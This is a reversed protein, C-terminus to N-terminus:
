PFLLFCLVHLDDSHLSVQLFSNSLDGMIVCTWRRFRLLVLPLDPILSPSAELCNSMSVGNPGKASADFVLSVKTLVVAERVVPHHPLYFTWQAPPDPAPVEEM